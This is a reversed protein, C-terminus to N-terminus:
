GVDEDDEWEDTDIDISPFPTSVASRGATCQATRPSRRAEVMTDRIGWWWPATGLPGRTMACELECQAAVM